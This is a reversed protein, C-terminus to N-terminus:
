FVENYGKERRSYTQGQLSNATLLFIVPIMIMLMAKQRFGDIPWSGSQTNNYTKVSTTKM